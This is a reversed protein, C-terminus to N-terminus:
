FSRSLRVLVSLSGPVDDLKYGFDVRADRTLGIGFGVGKLWPAAGSGGTVRGVDLFGIAHLGSLWGFAYELNALALRSGIAEKFDYGHVSGFGGIAFVRQPPLEGGSWGVIGRARLEQHRSLSVLTRASVIHRQFDFDGGLSAPSLESTWDARWAVRALRDHAWEAAVGQGFPSELQHRQYTAALSERDFGLPNFSAGVVIGNLRGARAPPNPRIPDDDNWFGYDSELDLAEHREGRWAALLELRPEARVAAHVQVGRRRYYDRLSSRPGLAGLSAELSTAQWRDDTATLDYLEGGIYVRHNSLFPREVGLAYGGRREATRLSVHGAVYAHNFRKQDYIAAGLGISPVFGDVRTFWDERDGLDPVLRFTGAPTRLDVQLVRRGDRTVVEFPPRGAPESEDDPSDPGRRAVRGPRIAGRTPALLAELAESARRRQFVDGARLAYDSALVAARTTEVGTFEVADIVGEDITVTLAGRTADFAATARAFSYDKRRYLRVVREAALALDPVPDGVHVELAEAVVDRSLENIGILVVDAIQAPEGAVTQVRDQAAVTPSAVVSALALAALSRRLVM